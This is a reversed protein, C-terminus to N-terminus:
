DTCISISCLLPHAVGSRYHQMWGANLAVSLPGTASVYSQMADETTPLSTFNAIHQLPKSSDYKCQGNMATYPYDSELELGNQVVYSFAHTPLGGSCGLDQKECDVLQQPARKVLPAGSLQAMSEIQETASFAWCSGCQGQNKIDSLVGTNRWDKPAPDKMSYLAPETPAAEEIEKPVNVGNLYQSAFEDATLDSFATVGYVGSARDEAQYRAAERM